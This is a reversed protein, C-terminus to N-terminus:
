NEFVVRFDKLGYGVEKAYVKLLAQVVFAEPLSEGISLSHTAPAAPFIPVATMRSATALPCWITPATSAVPLGHMPLLRLSSPVQSESVRITPESLILSAALSASM